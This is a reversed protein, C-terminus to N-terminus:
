SFQISVALLGLGLKRNSISICCCLRDKCTGASCIRKVEADDGAQSSRSSHSSM